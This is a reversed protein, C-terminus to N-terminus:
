KLMMSGISLGHLVLPGKINNKITDYIHATDSKLVDFNAVGSTFGFGRYDFWIVNANLQTLYPIVNKNQKLIPYNNPGFYLITLDAKERKIYIGKSVNGDKQLVQIKEIFLTPYLSSLSEVEKSYDYASEPQQNRLMDQGSPSLTACGSLGTM